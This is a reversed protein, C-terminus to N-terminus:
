LQNLVDILQRLRGYDRRDFGFGIRPLDTVDDDEREEATPEVIRIPQGAIIGAFDENLAALASPSPANRLRIILQDKVFRM